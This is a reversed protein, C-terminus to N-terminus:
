LAILVVTGLAATGDQSRQWWVGLREPQINLWSLAVGILTGPNLVLTTAVGM